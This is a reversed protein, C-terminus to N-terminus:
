PPLRGMGNRLLQSPIIVRHKTPNRFSMLHRGPISPLNGQLPHYCGHPPSLSSAPLRGVVPTASVHCPSRFLILQRNPCFYPSGFTRNAHLIQIQLLLDTLLHHQIRIFVGDVTPNILLHLRHLLMPRHIVAPGSPFGIHIHSGVPVEALRRSSADPFIAPINASSDPGESGVVSHAPSITQGAGRRDSLSM